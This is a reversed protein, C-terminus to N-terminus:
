GRRIADELFDAGSTLGPGDCTNSRALMPGFAASTGTAGPSIPAFGVAGQTGTPAAASNLFSAATSSGSRALTPPGLAAMGSASAQGAAQTLFSGVRSCAEGVPEAGAPAAAGVSALFGGVSSRAAPPAQDADADGGLERGDISGTVDLKLVHILNAKADTVYARWGDTAVGRMAAATPVPLVQRPEGDRTLLQVRLPESVLLWGHVIAVGRPLEFLGASTGTRGITREFHGDATFVALRDNYCDAVFVHTADAAVGDPCRLEGDGKGKRGFTRVLRLGNTAFAAVRHNSSDAVYVLEGDASVSIGTPSGLQGASSSVLLLEGGVGSGLNLKRVVATGEGEGGDLAYVVGRDRDCAVGLGFRLRERKGVVKGGLTRAGLARRAEGDTAGVIQLRGNGKDAVCLDGGALMCAFAPQNYQGLRAGRAGGFTGDTSLVNWEVSPRSPAGSEPRSADATSLFGAVDAAEGGSGAGGGAGLPRLVPHQAPKPPPPPAAAGSQKRARGQGPRPPQQKIRTVEVGYDCKALAGRGLAELRKAHHQRVAEKSRQRGAEQRRRWTEEAERQQQLLWSASLKASAGSAGPPKATRAHLAPVSANHQRLPKSRRMVSREWDAQADSLRTRLRAAEKEVEAIQSRLEVPSMPEGHPSRSRPAELPADPALEAHGRPLPPNWEYLEDEAADGAGPPLSLDTTVAAASALTPLEYTTEMTAENWYYEGGETDLAVRWGNGVGATMGGHVSPPEYQTARTTKNYYYPVGRSDRAIAWGAPPAVGSLTSITEAEPPTPLSPPPASGLVLGPPPEFQTRGDDHYYYTAGDKAVATHWRLADSVSRDVALPPASASSLAATSALFADVM